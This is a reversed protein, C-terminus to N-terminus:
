PPPTTTCNKCPAPSGPAVLGRLARVGYPIEKLNAIFPVDSLDRHSWPDIAGVFAIVIAVCLLVRFQHARKAAYSEFYPYLFFFLLPLLPVFWRISYSWGGYNNTFLLYYLVVISSGVAVVLAEYFFPGKDRIARILGWLAIAILPNYLLFGKSGLLASWAYSFAFQADNSRM